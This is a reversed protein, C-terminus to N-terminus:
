LGHGLQDLRPGSGPQMEAGGGLIALREARGDGAVDEAVLEAEAVVSSGLPDRTAPV